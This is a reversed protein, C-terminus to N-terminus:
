TVDYSRSFFSHHPPAGPLEILECRGSGRILV